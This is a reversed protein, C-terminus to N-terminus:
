DCYGNTLWESVVRVTFCPADASTAENFRPDANIAPWDKGVIYVSDINKRTAYAWTKSNVCAHRRTPSGRPEIHDSRSAWSRKRWASSPKTAANPRNPKLIFSPSSCSKPACIPEWGPLSGKIWCSGRWNNIQSLRRYCGVLWRIPIRNNSTSGSFQVARYTGGRTM